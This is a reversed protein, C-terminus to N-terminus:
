WCAKNTIMCYIIPKPTYITAKISIGNIRDQEVAQDALSQHLSSKRFKKV